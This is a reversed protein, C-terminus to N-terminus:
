HLNALVELVEKPDPVQGIDHVDIYRITGTKDIVFVAREAYGQSRLVGYRQAVEGHPWFDSLLPYNLGGLSKEWATNCAESDVSIGLVQTDLRDFETLVANFAPM